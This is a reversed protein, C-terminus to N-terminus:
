GQAFAVLRATGTLGTVGYHETQGPPPTRVFPQDHVTTIGITKVAVRDGSGLNVHPLVLTFTTSGVDPRIAIVVTVLTGIGTVVVQIENGSFRRTRSADQYLLSPKGGIGSPSYVVHVKGGSLRYLNPARQPQDAVPIIHENSTKLDLAGGPMQASAHGASFIAILVALAYCRM